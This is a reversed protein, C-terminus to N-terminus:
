EDDDILQIVQRTGSRGDPRDYTVEQTSKVRLKMGRPLLHATDDIGDSRGLYAGRRTQIEFAATRQEAGPVPEIEHLSHAGMTFRDFCVADGPKFSNGVFGALNHRNIMSPMAVNSYIVHGRNSIREQAQIARDIRQIRMLQKEDLAQVDGVNDSLQDNIEQWRQPRTIIDAVAGYQSNPLKDQWANKTVSRAKRQRSSMPKRLSGREGLRREMRPDPVTAAVDRPMARERDRRQRSLGPMAEVTQDLDRAGDRTEARELHQGPSIVQAQKTLADNSSGRDVDTV